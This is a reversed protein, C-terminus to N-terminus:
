PRAQGRARSTVPEDARQMTERGNRMKQIFPDRALEPYFDLLHLLASRTEASLSQGRGEVGVNPRIYSGVRKLVGAIDARDRNIRIKDLISLIVDIPSAMLDSYDIFMAQDDMRWGAYFNVYWPMALRVIMEELTQDPLTAHAKTFFAMPVRHVENRIYDRLSIVVDFLDRVLVVPTLGYHRIARQTWLSNRVHQHTIYALHSYRVLRVPSLEQEVYDVGIHDVGLGLFVRRFGTAESLANSLFTSGSKPMATLLIHPKKSILSGVIAHFALYAAWKLEKDIMRWAERNFVATEDFSRNM